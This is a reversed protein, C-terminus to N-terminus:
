WRRPLVDQETCRSPLFVLRGLRRWIPPLARKAWTSPRDCWARILRVQPTPVTECPIRKRSTRQRVAHGDHSTSTM